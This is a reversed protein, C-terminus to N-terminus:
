YGLHTLIATTENAPLGCVGLARVQSGKRLRQLGLAVKWAETDRLVFVYKKGEQDRLSARVVHYGSMTTQMDVHSGNISRPRAGLRCQEKCVKLMEALYADSEESTPPKSSAHSTSFRFPKPKV